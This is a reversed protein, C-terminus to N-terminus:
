TATISAARAIFQAQELATNLIIATRYTGYAILLGELVKGITEYNEVLYTGAQVADMVPVDAKLTAVPINCFCIAASLM